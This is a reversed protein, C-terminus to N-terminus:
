GTPDLLRRYMVLYADVTADMTFRQEAIQRARAGMAAAASPDGVLEEIAQALADPDESPVIWGTEGPVVAEDV